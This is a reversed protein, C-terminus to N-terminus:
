HLFSISKDSHGALQQIVHIPLHRAWNTICSRRMDHLTYLAVDAKRCATKFRRLLNNTLDRGEPWLGGEVQWRYHDWRGHEMFAYPCGEPAVSRWAGLLSATQSPLSVTRMQNDKPTWAQIFDAAKKCSVHLWGSALDIDDWTLNTAERLRLGATHLTM